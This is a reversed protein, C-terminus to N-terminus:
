GAIMGAGQEPVLRLTAAAADDTVMRGVTTEGYRGYKARYAADVSARLEAKDDGVDEIAIDAELSESPRRLGGRLDSRRAAGGRCGGQEPGPERHFRPSRDHGANRAHCQCGGVRGADGYALGGAVRVQRGGDADLVV